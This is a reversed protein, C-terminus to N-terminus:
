CRHLRQPIEHSLGNRQLREDNLEGNFAITWSLSAVACCTPETAFVARYGGGIHM